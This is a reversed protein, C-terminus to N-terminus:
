TKTSSRYWSGMSVSNGSVVEMRGMVSVWENM